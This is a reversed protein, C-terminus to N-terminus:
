TPFLYIKKFPPLCSKIFHLLSNPGWIRRNRIAITSCYSYPSHPESLLPGQLFILVLTGSLLSKPPPPGMLRGKERGENGAKAETIPVKGGLQFALPDPGSAQSHNMSDTM